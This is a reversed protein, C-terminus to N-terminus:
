LQPPRSKAKSRNHEAGIAFVREEELQFSLVTAGASCTTSQGQGTKWFHVQFDLDLEFSLCYFYLFHSYLQVCKVKLHNHTPIPAKSEQSISSAIYSNKDGVCVM